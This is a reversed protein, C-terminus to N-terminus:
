TASWGGSTRGSSCRRCTANSHRPWHRLTVPRTPPSSRALFTRAVPPPCGPAGAPIGRAVVAPALKRGQGQYLLVHDGALGGLGFEGAARDSPFPRLVWEAEDEAVRTNIMERVEQAVAALAAAVAPSDGAFLKVRMDGFDRSVLECRGLDPLQRADPAPKGRYAAPKVIASTPSASVVRVHGLVEEAGADAGAPRRVALM